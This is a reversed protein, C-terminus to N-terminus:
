KAKIRIESASMNYIALTKNDKIVHQLSGRVLAINFFEDKLGNFLCNDITLSGTDEVSIYRFERRYFAQNINKINYCKSTVKQNPSSQSKILKLFMKSDNKEVNWKLRIQDNLPDLIPENYGVPRVIENNLQFEVELPNLIYVEKDKLLYNDNELFDLKVTKGIYEQGAGSYYYKSGSNKDVEKAEYVKSDINWKFKENDVLSKNKYMYYIMDMYQSGGIGRTFAISYDSNNKLVPNGVMWTGNLNPDADSEILYSTNTKQKCSHFTLLFVVILIAQLNHTKYFRM